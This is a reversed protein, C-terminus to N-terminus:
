FPIKALGHRYAYIALHLRDTQGVKEYIVSLYNRVTKESIGLRAAIADNRLGAGVLEVIDRERDTLAQQPLPLRAGDPRLLRSMESSVTGRDFWLEGARVRQIARIVVDAREHKSVLGRAGLQLARAPVAPDRAGTLVIVAASPAAAALSGILPLADFGALDDDLLIVDPRSATAVAIAERPDGTEAVVAIAAETSIAAKLGDRFIPYDDVVLVRTSPLVAPPVRPRYGSALQGALTKSRV